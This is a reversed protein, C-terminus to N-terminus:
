ESRGAPDVDGVAAKGVPIFRQIRMAVAIGAAVEGGGVQAM